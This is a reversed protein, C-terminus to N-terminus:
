NCTPWFWGNWGKWTQVRWFNHSVQKKKEVNGSFIPATIIFQDLPVMMKTYVNVFIGNWVFTTCRHIRKQKYYFETMASSNNLTYLVHGNPPKLYTQGVLQLWNRTLISLCVPAVLYQLPSNLWYPMECLM